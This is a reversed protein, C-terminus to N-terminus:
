ALLERLRQAVHEATFGFHEALAATPASAGYGDRAHVAGKPGVWRHWGIPSGAEVALRATVKPPLVTDRYDADQAEFLEWSPFSVVRTPTGETSLAAAAEVAPAVESGSALVIAAPAEATDALIYGGRRVGDASTAELVPVKQRTLVLATPGTRRELAVHWAAVTENADAPRLVTLNPISRLSLLQSIPQHTPGDEGLLVSDHTFVYIVPLKMLAALRIAARMYDSFILFTAVYPRMGGIALGNAIAGMGHERVGFRLNRGGPDHRSQNPENELDTANSGALDASGGVLEPIAGAIGNLVAGTVSRTALAPHDAEYSPLDTAWGDPLQGSQIRQWEAAHDGPESAFRQALERWQRHAERGRDAAEVFPLRAEQPVLFTPSEPWGLNAKTAQVEDAGLAAGHAASSDQKGPSGFGIHTHVVILSPRSTEAIATDYAVALAELDNGDSVQLTHWGYAEYRKAVDETFSIDTSGDITIQNADYIVNLKGLGLHGALSSAESAVGEMLDGDSVVAWTRYDVLTSGEHNFREALLREALAMGVANGVGQGLPGTTTEVGPTLGREPHGPTKSGLQRFRELEDLDLDFGSLHLLAYLLASAHGCSLVFRDRNTWDPADPDFRLYRTWLLYALPAQAMPAGPHGCGAAEVMDVALFRITDIPVRASAAQDLTPM